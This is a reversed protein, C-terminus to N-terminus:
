VVKNQVTHMMIHNGEVRKQNMYWIYVHQNDIAHFFYRVSVNKSFYIIDITKIVAPQHMCSKAKTM